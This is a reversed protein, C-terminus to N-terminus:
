CLVQFHHKPESSKGRRPPGYEWTGATLRGPHLFFFRSSWFVRKKISPFPSKFCGMKQSTFIQLQQMSHWRSSGHGMAKKSDHRFRSYYPQHFFDQVLQYPLIDDSKCPKICGLHHDGSKKWWCYPYPCAGICWTFICWRCVAHTAGIEM